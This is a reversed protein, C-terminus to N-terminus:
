NIIDAKPLMYNATQSSITVAGGVSGQGIAGVSSSVLSKVIQPMAKKEVAKFAASKAGTYVGGTLAFTIAYPVMNTVVEGVKYGLDKDILQNYYQARLKTVTVKDEDSLKQGSELKKAVYYARM